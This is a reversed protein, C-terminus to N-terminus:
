NQSIPKPRPRPPINKLSWCYHASRLTPQQNRGWVNKGILGCGVGHMAHTEVGVAPTNALGEPHSSIDNRGIFLSVSCYTVTAKNNSCLQCVQM